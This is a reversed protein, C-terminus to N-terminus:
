DPQGPFDWQQGPRYGLLSYLEERTQMSGLLTEATGEDKLVRLGRLVHGMALRMMSLPYIVLAYGLEGFRRATIQPTKGFETMNALLLGPSGAAFDAFEQESQLGEPFIMDAGAERYLNGREIADGMGNVSRADTRAIVLLDPSGRHDCAAAVKKAMDGAPILTKGELHGCRKPFVQDEIHLGAAGAREYDVTTRIVSEVEGYGTDADVITPLGSAQTVQRITRCMESLTILGIDPYGAINATAGGSVYCAEFGTTRVARAVLANFAGPAIVTGRNMLDRLQRGPHVADSTMPGPLRASEDAPTVRSGEGALLIMKIGAVVLVVALTRRLGKHGLRRSGFSSGVLGGGLVAVAFIGTTGAEIPLSGHRAALGILAAASNCLIFAASVGATRRATAWGFILLVPSLFVGGGIGVLGSLLGIAAGWALGASVPVPVQPESDNPGPIRYALRFAAFLLVVGVLRKYLVPDLDIAGGLMACPLSTVMFPWLTRWHFGGVRTFRVLATSAVVLNLVLATPRMIEPCVAAIGMAMLYGSGGGHGVTSYLAALVMFAAALGFLEISTM